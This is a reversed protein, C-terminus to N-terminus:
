KSASMSSYIIKRVDQKSLGKDANKKAAHKEAKDLTDGWVWPQSIPHGDGLLPAHGAENETVLSPVYGGHKDPDQSPNIYYCRRNTKTKM